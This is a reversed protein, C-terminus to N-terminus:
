PLLIFPLLAGFSYSLTLSRLLFCGVEWFGKPVSPFGQSGPFSSLPGQFGQIEVWLCFISHGAFGIQPRAFPPLYTWSSLVPPRFSVIPFASASPPAVLGSSPRHLM